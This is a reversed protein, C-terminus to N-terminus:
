AFSLGRRRSGGKAQKERAVHPHRQLAQRLAAYTDMGSGHVVRVPLGALFARDVFKKVERTADDVNCNLEIEPLRSVLLRGSPAGEM